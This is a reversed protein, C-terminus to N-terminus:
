AGRLKYGKDNNRLVSRIFYVEQMGKGKVPISGRPIIDFKRRLRLYTAGSCQIHGPLSHSEMRAAMNVTDGFLDSHFILM